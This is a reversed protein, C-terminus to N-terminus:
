GGMFAGGNVFLNQGTLYRAAPSVLFAVVPGVDAEPDGVRGVATRAVNKAALSPDAAVARVMAPTEALPTVCNVTVGSPGWERALSKVFARQGGKVTAYLPLNANGEIGTTSTLVIFTGRSDVLPGFGHRALHYAGRLAVGLHDDWADHGADEIACPQSSRGSTANHVIADLRGFRDVAHAVAARVDGEVAVDCAAFSAAGGRTAVEEVIAEGKAPDRTAVVVNGGAAALALTLGRGVGAAGGTVITTHGDPLRIM